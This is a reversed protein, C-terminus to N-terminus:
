KRVTAGFQGEMARILKARLKEVDKETLTRDDAQYTLSYALSKKGAGVQEGRYVDFLTIGRLLAGGARRLALEVDAATVDDNVVIALDEITAPFRPVEVLTRTGSAAARLAVVDLDALLVPADAPLDWTERVKPHLEGFIGVQTGDVLIAATRGPYFTPHSIAAFTTNEVALGGLMTELVGKLDFFDFANSDHGNGHWSPSSKRGSLAIALRPTEEPLPGGEGPIYVSGVEFLATRPHHRLNSQVTELVGPTLTHRMAAREPVIPNLLTVYPKDDAPTGPAYARMEQAPTTMRYTVIEQLGAEVLLDKVKDEFDLEPTGYANPLVDNMLSPTLQDYGYIRAIEEILDHEGEIDLRYDPATVHLPTHPTSPSSHEKVKFELAKLIRVMEEVPIEAGLLRTVHEPYLDVVVPQRPVPYVDLIGVDISGGCIQQLLHLGRKQAALAQSPHVGKAYRASAESNLNLRRATRRISIPDWSAVELLVDTTDEKVESEAGGMVGALALPGLEDCVLIDTPLLARVQGDLTTVKEGASALRTIITRKGSPGVRVGHLDFTHTPQGIELMVYNSIDVVNSIARIGCLQLRRQMWYPSHGPRINRIIGATFRPNLKPDRIQIDLEQAIAPGGAGVDLSPYRVRQGTLAAVERAIGIISACRATNPLIAIDLVADGLYDALPTGVPADDPLVLIGEHEESLGLEKESCVMSDNKIGRLTAEKLTILIKGEKHGDYLRAGKLALVVKQGSEGPAINPAGTVVVIPQPAGYEVTALLLRDANPHREVKLLQGVFIKDREWPLESGPLGIFEIHEVELGALTLKEALQEVSLTIDVYDKLWSIPVRM